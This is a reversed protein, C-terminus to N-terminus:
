GQGGGDLRAPGALLRMLLELVLQPETVEFAARPGSQVPVGEHAADREGIQLVQAEGPIAPRPPPFIGVQCGPGGGDGLRGATRCAMIPLSNAERM